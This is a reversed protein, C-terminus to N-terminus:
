KKVQNRVWAASVFEDQRRQRRAAWWQTVRRWWDAM